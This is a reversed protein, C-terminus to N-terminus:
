ALSLYHFYPMMKGTATRTAIQLGGMSLIVLGAGMDELKEL